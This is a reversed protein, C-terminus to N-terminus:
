PPPLEVIVPIILFYSTIIFFLDKVSQEISMFIQLSAYSICYVSALRVFVVWLVDMVRNIGGRKRPMYTIYKTMCLYACIVGKKRVRRRCLPITKTNGQERALVVYSTSCGHHREERPSIKPTKLELKAIKRYKRSEGVRSYRPATLM